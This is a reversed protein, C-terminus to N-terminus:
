QGQSGLLVGHHHYTAEVRGVIERFSKKVKSWGWVGGAVGSGQRYLRLHVNGDPMTQFTFWIEHYQAFAGLMINAGLSGKKATGTWGDPSWEVRFGDHQFMMDLTSRARGPDGSIYLHADIEKSM